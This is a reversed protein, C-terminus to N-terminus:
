DDSFANALNITYRGESLQATTPHAPPNSPMGSVNHIFDGGVVVVVVWWWGFVAVYLFFVLLTAVSYCCLLLM